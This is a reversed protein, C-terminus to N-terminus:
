QTGRVFAEMENAGEPALGEKQMAAQWNILAQKM